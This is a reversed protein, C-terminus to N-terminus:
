HINERLNKMAEIGLGMVDVTINVGTEYIEKGIKTNIGGPAFQEALNLVGGFIMEPAKKAFSLEYKEAVRAAVIGASLVGRGVGKAIQATTVM